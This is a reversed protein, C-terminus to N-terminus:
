TVRVEADSGTINTSIYHKGRAYKIRTFLFFTNRKKHSNLNKKTVRCSEVFINYM